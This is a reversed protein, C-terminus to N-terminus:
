SKPRASEGKRVFQSLSLRSKRFRYQATEKLMFCRGVWWSMSGHRLVQYRRQKPGRTIQMDPLMPWILIMPLEWMKRNEIKVSPYFFGGFNTASSFRSMRPSFRLMLWTYLHLPHWWRMHQTADVIHALAVSPMVGGGWGGDWINRVMLWIHLVWTNRLM